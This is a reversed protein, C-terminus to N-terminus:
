KETGKTRRKWKQFGCPETFPLAMGKKTPGQSRELPSVEINFPHLCTEM